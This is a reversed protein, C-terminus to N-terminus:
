KATRLAKRLNDFFLKDFKREFVKLTPEIVTPQRRIRAREALTYLFVLKSNRGRGKRQFLGTGGGKLPLVVDRKGRLAKPRQSRGIIDRKTRRVNKSPVALSNGAPTKDEGSEHPILWDARTVLAASLDTKTAPLAKIGMANSPRDWNNRVTFTSEIGSVVDGQAQKVVGTLTQALAYTVQKAVNIPKNAM